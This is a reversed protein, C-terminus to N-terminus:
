ACPPSPCGDGGDENREGRRRLRVVIFTSGHIEVRKGAAEGTGGTQHRLGGAAEDDAHQQEQDRDPQGQDEAHQLDDIEAM